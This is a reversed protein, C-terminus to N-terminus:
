IKQLEQAVLSWLATEKDYFNEIQETFIKDYSIDNSIATILSM